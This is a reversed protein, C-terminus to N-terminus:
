RTHYLILIRTQAKDHDWWVLYPVIYYVLFEYALWVLYLVLYSGCYIIISSHLTSLMQRSGVMARAGELARRVQLWWWVKVASIVLRKDNGKKEAKQMQSESIDYLDYNCLQYFYVIQMHLNQPLRILSSPAHYSTVLWLDAQSAHVSNQSVCQLHQPHQAM